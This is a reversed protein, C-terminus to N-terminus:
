EPLYRWIWNLHLALRFSTTECHLYDNVSNDDLYSAKARVKFPVFELASFLLPTELENKQKVEKMGEKYHAVGPSAAVEFM